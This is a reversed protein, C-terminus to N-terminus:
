HVSEVIFRKREESLKRLIRGQEQLKKENQVNNQDMLGYLNNLKTEYETRLKEVEDLVIDTVGDVRITLVNAIVLLVPETPESMVNDADVLNEDSENIVIHCTKFKVNLAAFTVLLEPGTSLRAKARPSIKNIVIGFKNTMDINQFSSLIIDMTTVDQPRIRGSEITVVFILKMFKVSRFLSVIAQAAREKTEIDMLGPTDGLVYSETEFKQLVTTMGTSVSFGSRFIPTGAGTLSNLITSKGVGPNGALVIHLKDNM